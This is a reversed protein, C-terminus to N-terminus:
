DSLATISQKHSEKKNLKQALALPTLKKSDTLKRDAGAWLLLEVVKADNARAAVHLPYAFSSSLMGSKVKKENVDKFGTSQLFTRLEDQKRAEEARLIEEEERRLREIELLQRREEAEAAAEAEARAQARQREEEELARRRQQAKQEALARAEEEARRKEAEEEVARRRQEEELREREERERCLRNQEEVIRRAEEERREVATQGASPGFLPKETPPAVNEKDINVTNVKVTDTDKDSVGACNQCAKSSKCM